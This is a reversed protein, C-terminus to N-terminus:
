LNSLFEMTDVGDAYDNLAPSQAAGFPLYDKGVIAQIKDEHAALYSEKEEESEYFHYHLVAVPAFLEKIERTLIFGNEIIKEQNMLYVAKYYDYNNGYKNHNIVEGFGVIAGFIHDLNYGKPLLLHSVNRCGLGYYTFIDKGLEKLEEPTEDGKIVAVSTRNKRIVRPLHGFYKEFYRATNDSGTAIVAEADNLKDVIELQTKLEPQLAVLVELMMPILIKDDSSLKIIAKNGSFVTSLIDHFGVLPINGALILGVAKPTKVVPYGELWSALNKESLTEGIVRFSEKVSDESFWGNHAKAGLIATQMRDYFEEAVYPNFASKEAGEGWKIMSDGLISFTKITKSRNM